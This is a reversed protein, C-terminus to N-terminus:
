LLSSRIEPINLLLGKSTSFFISNVLGLYKKLNPLEYLESGNLLNKLVRSHSSRAIRVILYEKEIIVSGMFGIPHEESFIRKRFFM